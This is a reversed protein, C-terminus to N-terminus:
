SRSTSVPKPVMPSESGDLDVRVVINPVFSGRTSRGGGTTSQQPERRQAALAADETGHTSLVLSGMPQEWRDSLSRLEYRVGDQQGSRDNTEDM